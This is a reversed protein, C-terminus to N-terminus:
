RQHVLKVAAAVAAVEAMEEDSNRSQPRAVVEVEPLRMLIQSMITIGLVLLALFVFVSGMGMVMLSVGDWMIDSM